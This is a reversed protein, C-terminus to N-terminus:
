LQKGWRENLGEVTTTLAEISIGAGKGLGSLFLHVRPPLRPYGLVNQFLAEAHLLRLDSPDVPSACPYHQVPTHHHFYDIQRM